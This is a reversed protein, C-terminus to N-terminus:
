PDSRLSEFEPRVKIYVIQAARGDTYKELIEFAKERNGPRLLMQALDVWNANRDNEGLELRKKWYGRPGSMALAEQLVAKRKPATMGTALLNYHTIEEISESLMEKTAYIEGLYGYTRVFNVNFAKLGELYVINEIQTRFVRM